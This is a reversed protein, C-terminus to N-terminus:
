LVAGVRWGGKGYELGQISGEQDTAFVSPGERSGGSSLLARRSNSSSGVSPMMVVAEGGRGDGVGGSSGTIAKSESGNIVPLELASDILPMRRDSSTIEVEKMDGGMPSAIGAAVAAGNVASGASGDSKLGARHSCDKIAVKGEQATDQWQQRRRFGWVVGAVLAAVVVALGVVLGAIGGGGLGGSGASGPTWLSSDDSPWYYGSPMARQPEPDPLMILDTANFGPGEYSTLRLCCGPIYYM